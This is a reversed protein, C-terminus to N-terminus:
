PSLMTVTKAMNVFFSDEFAKLESLNRIEFNDFKQICSDNLNELHNHM